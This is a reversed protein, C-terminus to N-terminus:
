LGRSSGLHAWLNRTLHVTNHLRLCSSSDCFVFAVSVHTFRAIYMPPGVNLLSGVDDPFSVLPRHFSACTIIRLVSLRGPIPRRWRSDFVVHNIIWPNIGSEYHMQITIEPCHFISFIFWGWADSPNKWISHPEIEYRINLTKRSAVKKMIYIVWVFCCCFNLLFVLFCKDM